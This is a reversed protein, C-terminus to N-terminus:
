PSLELGGLNFRFQTNLALYWRPISVPQSVALERAGFAPLIWLSSGLVGRIRSEWQVWREKWSVLQRQAMQSQGRGLVQAGVAVEDRKGPFPDGGGEEETSEQQPFLPLRPLSPHYCQDGFLLFPWVPCFSLWLLGTVLYKRIMICKQQCIFLNLFYIFSSIPLSLFLGLNGSHFVNKTVIGWCFAFTQLWPVSIFGHPSLGWCCFCFDHCFPCSLLIEVCPCLHFHHALDASCGRHMWLLRANVHLLQLFSTSFISCIYILHHNQETSQLICWMLLIIVSSQLNSM